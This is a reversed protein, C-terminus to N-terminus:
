SSGLRFTLVQAGIRIRDGSRLLVREIRADNVSTGNHSQLDELFFRGESYLIAAHERSVEENWPLVLDSASSVRGIVTVTKSLRCPAGGADDFELTAEVAPPLPGIETSAMTPGQERPLPADLLPVLSQRTRREQGAGEFPVLQDIAELDDAGAPAAAPMSGKHSSKDNSESDM